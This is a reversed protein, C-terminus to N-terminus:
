PDVKCSVGFDCLKAVIKQNSDQCVLINQPKVDRHVVGLDNHLYNLGRVLDKLISMIVDSHLFGPSQFVGNPKFIFKSTDWHMVEQFQSLEMIVYIKDSIEETDDEIIEFVQICHSNRVIRNIELEKRVEDLQTWIQMGPQGDTRKLYQKQKKLTLKSFIKIALPKKDSVRTCEKVKCLNGKALLKGKIYQDKSGFLTSGDKKVTKTHIVSQDSNQISEM